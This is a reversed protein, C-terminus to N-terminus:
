KLEAIKEKILSELNGFGRDIYKKSLFHRAEELSNTFMKQLLKKVSHAGYLEDFQTHHRLIFFLVNENRHFQMIAKTTLRSFRLISRNIKLVLQSLLTPDWIAGEPLQRAILQVTDFAQLSYLWANDAERHMDVHDQNHLGGEQYLFTCYNKIKALIGDETWAFLRLYGQASGSLKVIKSTLQALMASDYQPAITMLQEIKQIEAYALLLESLVFQMLLHSHHHYSKAQRHASVIPRPLPPVAVPDDGFLCRSIM